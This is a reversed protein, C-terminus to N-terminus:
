DSYNYLDLVLSFRFIFLSFFFLLFREWIEKERLIVRGFGIQILYLGSAISRNALSALSGYYRAGCGPLTIESALGRSEDLVTMHGKAESIRRSVDLASREKKKGRLRL